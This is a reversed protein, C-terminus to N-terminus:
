ARFSKYAISLSFLHLVWNFFSNRYAQHMPISKALRWIGKHSFAISRALRPNIRKNLRKFISKKRKFQKLLKARLRRKIWSDIEKFNRKASAIKFYHFWGRLIRTLCKTIFPISWALNRKTLRKVKHKLSRINVKSISLQGDCKLRFGLISTYLSNVSSKDQNIPLKLKKEVFASINEFLRHAARPSGLFITLDDAYRVFSFGRQTLWQDLQDLFINMLLPSLPGGQPTGKTNSSLQNGDMIGARLFLAILRIVRKDSIRNRIQNILLDHNIMDFCQKFDISLTAKLGDQVFKQATKVADHASRGKRFGFSYESFNPDFLPSIIQAIAQQVVRDIVTPIGLARKGGSTKPIYVRKVPSPKFTMTNLQEQIQNLYFSLDEKVAAISMKDIGPAGKNAKVKKFADMLNDLSSIDDLLHLTDSHISANPYHVVHEASPLIEAEGPSESCSSLDESKFNQM